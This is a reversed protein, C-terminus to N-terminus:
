LVILSVRIKAETDLVSTSKLLVPQGVDGNVMVSSNSFGGSTVRVFKFVRIDKPPAWFSDNSILPFFKLEESWLLWNIKSKIHGVTVVDAAVNNNTLYHVMNM